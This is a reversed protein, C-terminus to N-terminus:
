KEKELRKELEKLKQEDLKALLKKSIECLIKDAKSM